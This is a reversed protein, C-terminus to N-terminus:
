PSPSSIPTSLRRNLVVDMPKWVTIGPVHEFHGHCSVIDTLSPHHRNMCGLHLSDTVLLGYTARERKTGILLDRTMPLMKLHAHKILDEVQQQHDTLTAAQSRHQSLWDKLHNLNVRRIYGKQYAEALMLQHILDAIVQANVYAFVNGAELNEILKKCSTSKRKYYLDFIDAEVFVHSGQPLVALNKIIASL